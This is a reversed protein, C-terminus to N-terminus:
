NAPGAPATLHRDRRGTLTVNGTNTVLFSYDVPDGAATVTTPAASKVLTSRARARDPHLAAVPPTSRPTTRTSGHATATNAVVGTASDLDAQSVTYDATCATSGTPALTTEPCTIASLQDGTGPATM